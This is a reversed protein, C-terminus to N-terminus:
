GGPGSGNRRRSRSNRPGSANLRSNTATCVQAPRSGGRSMRWPISTPIRRWTSEASQHAASAPVAVTTMLHTTCHPLAMTAPYVPSCTSNRNRDTTKAWAWRRPRSANSSSPSAWITVATVASTSAMTANRRVPRTTATILTTVRTPMKTASSAMRARSTNSIKVVM